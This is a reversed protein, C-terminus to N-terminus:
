KLENVRRQVAAYDYGAATLRRKREEGNGWKGQWVERAIEDISKKGDSPGKMSTVVRQVEEYNYGAATLRCKRDEGVGWKGQWVESAIEEVTKKTHDDPPVNSNYLAQEAARRRVLGPLVAGGGHNYQPLANGVFTANRGSCLEKLRGQGCNYAFSVLADFQGQTLSATFPVYSPNNVYGEFSALDQRLFTEAQEQSITMGPRVGGTHGYGITWVGAPCRYATLKCGEFQKILDIGAQSISKPM